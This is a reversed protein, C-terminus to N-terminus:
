SWGHLRAEKMNLFDIGRTQSPIPLFSSTLIKLTQCPVKATNTMDLHLTLVTLPSSLGAGASISMFCSHLRPKVDCAISPLLSSCLWMDGLLGDRM